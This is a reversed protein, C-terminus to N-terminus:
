DLDMYYGKNNEKGDVLDEINGGKKKQELFMEEYDRTYDAHPVVHVDFILEHKESNSFNGYLEIWHKAYGINKASNYSLSVVGEAGVPIHKTTSSNVLLCGCSTIIDSIMLPAKGTNKIKFVVDLAQGTLVPYYHRDNDFVEMTTKMNKIDACSALLLMLFFGIVYVRNM